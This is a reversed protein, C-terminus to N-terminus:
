KDPLLDVEIYKSRLEANIVNIIQYIKFSIFDNIDMIKGIDAPRQGADQIQMYADYLIDYSVATNVMDDIFRPLTQAIRKANSKGILTQDINEPKYIVEGPAYLGNGNSYVGSLGTKWLYDSLEEIGANDAQANHALRLLTISEESLGLQDYSSVVKRRDKTRGLLYDVSVDFYDAIKILTDYGPESIGHVYQSVTQRTKGTIEAIKEQTTTPKESMLARLAVPFPSKDMEAIGKKARAM